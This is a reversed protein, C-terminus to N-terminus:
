AISSGFVVASKVRHTWYLKARNGGLRAIPLREMVRSVSARKRRWGGESTMAYAAARDCMASYCEQDRSCAVCVLVRLESATVATARTPRFCERCLARAAARRAQEATPVVARRWGERFRVPRHRVHAGLERVADAYTWREGRVRAVSLRTWKEDFPSAVEDPPDAAVKWYCACRHTAIWTYALDELAARIEVSVYSLRFLDRVGLVGCEFAVTAVSILLDM